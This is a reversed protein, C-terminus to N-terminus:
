GKMNSDRHRDGDSKTMEDGCGTKELGERSDERAGSKGRM